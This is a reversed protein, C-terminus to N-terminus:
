RARYPALVGSAGGLPSVYLTRDQGKHRYVAFGHYEGVRTFLKEDFAVAPGDAFYRQTGYVIYIANIGEPRRATTLPGVPAAPARGVTGVLATAPTQPIEALAIRDVGEGLQSPPAQAQVMGAGPLYDMMGAQEVPRVVPFSPTVSGVTGAVDGERRREYPHMLGGGIPVFVLSYPEITTRSYLPVGQFHGSRVMENGNFHVMPGSPYYTIGGFTIPAGGVYWGENDATVIPRATPQMTMQALMAPGTLLFTTLAGVVVAARTNM